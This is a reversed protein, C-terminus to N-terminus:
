KTGGSWEYSCQPCKYEVTVSTVEPFENPPERDKTAISALLADIDSSGDFGTGRWDFEPVDVFDGLSPLWGGVEQTRNASVLYARMDADSAFGSGLITPVCWVGDDDVDIGEPPDEGLMMMETLAEIRGHGNVNNGTEENVEIPIRYGFRRFAAQLLPIDHGKPNSETPEVETIPRYELRLRRTM